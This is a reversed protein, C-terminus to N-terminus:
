ADPCRWCHAAQTNAKSQGVSIPAEFFHNIMSNRVSCRYSCLPCKIVVDGTSTDQNLTFSQRSLQPASVIPESASILKVHPHCNQKHETWGSVYVVTKNCESLPSDFKCKKSGRNKKAIFCEVVTKMLVSFQKRGKASLKQKLIGVTQSSLNPQRITCDSIRIVNLRSAMTTFILELSGLGLKKGFTLVKLYIM